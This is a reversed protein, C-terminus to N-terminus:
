AAGSHFPKTTSGQFGSGEVLNTESSSVHWTTEMKIGDLPVHGPQSGAQNASVSNYYRNSPTINNYYKLNNTPEGFVSPLVHKLLSPIFPMCACIIAIDSEAVSWYVAAANDDSAATLVSQPKNARPRSV